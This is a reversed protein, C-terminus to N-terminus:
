AAFLMLLFAGFGSILGLWLRPQDVFPAFVAMGVGVILGIGVAYILRASSLKARLASRRYARRIKNVSLREM